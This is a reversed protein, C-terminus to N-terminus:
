PGCSSAISPKPSRPPATGLWGPFSRWPCRRMRSCRCSATGCGAHLGSGASKGLPTSAGHRGFRGTFQKGNDSIIEEPVGFRALAEALALCVARGTAREVVKAIVCYRSHDDVATVVKAERLEGTVLSVLRVGEVIDLQWLQM